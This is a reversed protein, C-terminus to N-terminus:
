GNAGCEAAYDSPLELCEFNAVPEKEGVARVGGAVSLIGNGVRIGERAILQCIQPLSM